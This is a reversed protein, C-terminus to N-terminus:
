RRCWSIAGDMQAAGHDHKKVYDAHGPCDVDRTGTRTAYEVHSERDDLDERMAGDQSELAKAVQDYTVYHGARQGGGGKTLAATLTDERTV